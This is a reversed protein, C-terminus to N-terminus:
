PRRKTSIFNSVMEAVAESSKLVFAHAIKVEKMQLEPQFKKFDEMYHGPAWGDQSSYIVNTIHKVKDVIGTNLSVVSDMEDYAMFLVKELVYPNCYKLLRELYHQPLSNLRLYCNALFENICRPLLYVLKIFVMVLVHFRRIVNNLFQGNPSIAMKQVTPFLFNVSSTRQILDCHKDFLELIIWCGISHGIFHLKSRKDIHNCIMDAKHKVQGELDFLHEQGKLHNSSKDALYEHGAHGIVCVPLGLSRHLESAFEIYFDTVGPNGTICIIVDSGNCDFPNEWTLLCTNVNNLCKYINNM